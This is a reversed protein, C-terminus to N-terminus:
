CDLMTRFATASVQAPSDFIQRATCLCTALPGVAAVNTQCKSARDFNLVHESPELLVIRIGVAHLLSHVLSM